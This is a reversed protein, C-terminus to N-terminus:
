NMRMLMEKLRNFLVPNNICDLPTLNDLAPIKRQVWELSSDGVIGEITKTLLIDGNLIALLQLTIKSDPIVAYFSSFCNWNDDSQYYQELRHEEIEMDIHKKRKDKQKMKM